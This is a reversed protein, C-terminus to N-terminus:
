EGIFYWFSNIMIQLLRMFSSNMEQIKKHSLCYFSIFAQSSKGSVYIAENQQVMFNIEDRTTYNDM